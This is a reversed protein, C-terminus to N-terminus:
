LQGYLEILDVFHKWVHRGVPCGFIRRGVIQIRGGLRDRTELSVQCAPIILRLPEIYQGIGATNTATIMKAPDNHSNELSPWSNTGVRSSFSM